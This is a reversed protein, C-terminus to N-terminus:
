SRAHALALGEAFLMAESSAPDVVGDIKRASAGNFDQFICTVAGARVAMGFSLGCGGLDKNFM